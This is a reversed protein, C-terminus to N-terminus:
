FISAKLYVRSEPHEWQGKDLMIKYHYIKAQKINLKKNVIKM